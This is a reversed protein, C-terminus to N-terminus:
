KSDIEPQSLNADFPSLNFAIFVFSGPVPSQTATGRNSPPTWTAPLCRSSHAGTDSQIAMRREENWDACIQVGHFPKIRTLPHQQGPRLGRLLQQLRFGTVPLWIINTMENNPNTMESSNIV